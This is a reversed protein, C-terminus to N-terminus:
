TFLGAISRTLLAVGAAIVKAGFAALAIFIALQLVRLALEHGRWARGFRLPGHRRAALPSALRFKM